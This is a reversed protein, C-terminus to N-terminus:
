IEMLPPEELKILFVKKHESTVDDLSHLVGFNLNKDLELRKIISVRNMGANDSGKGDKKSEVVHGPVKVTHELRDVKTNSDFSIFKDERDRQEQYFIVDQTVLLSVFCSVVLLPFISAYNETTFFKSGEEFASITLILLLVIASHARFVVVHASGMICLLAICPHEFFSSGISLYHHIIKMFDILFNSAVAGIYLPGWFQGGVIGTGISLGICVLKAIFLASSCQIGPGILVAQPDEPDVLCYSWSLLSESRNQIGGFFPLQTRGGDIITQLQAEGWFFTHPLLMGVVGVIFGAVAGLVAARIQRHLPNMRSCSTESFQITDASAANWSSPLLLSEEGHLTNGEVQTYNLTPGRCGGWGQVWNKLNKVSKCYITGVLAGILGYAIAIYFVHSKLPAVAFPYYYYGQLGNGTVVRNFLVALISSINATPLAEFYQLGMGETAHLASFMRLINLLHKLVNTQRALCNIGNSVIPYNLCLCLGLWLSAL